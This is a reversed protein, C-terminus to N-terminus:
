RSLIGVVHKMTHSSAHKPIYTYPHNRMSVSGSSQTLARRTGDEQRSAWKTRHNSSWKVNKHSSHDFFQAYISARGDVRGIYIAYMYVCLSMCVLELATFTCRVGLNVFSTGCWEYHINYKQTYVYFLICEREREREDHSREHKFVVQSIKSSQKSEHSPNWMAQATYVYMRVHMDKGICIYIYIYIYVYAYVSLYIM